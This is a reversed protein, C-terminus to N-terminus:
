LFSGERSQDMSCPFIPNECLANQGSNSSQKSVYKVTRNASASFTPEGGKACLIVGDVRVARLQREDSLKYKASRGASASM